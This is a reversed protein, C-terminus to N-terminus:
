CVYFIIIIQTPERAGRAPVFQRAEFKQLCKEDLDTNSWRNSEIKRCACEELIQAPLCLSGLTEPAPFDYIWQFHVESLIRANKVFIKVLMTEAVRISTTNHKSKKHKIDRM